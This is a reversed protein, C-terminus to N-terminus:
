AYSFSKNLQTQSAANQSYGAEDVEEKLIRPQLENILVRCINGPEVKVGEAGEFDWELTGRRPALM